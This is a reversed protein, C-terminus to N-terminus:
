PNELVWATARHMLEAASKLDLKLKLRERYTNVTNTSLGLNEAIERTTAGQGLLRFVELERDSLSEIPSQQVDEGDQTRHLVREILGESFYMKRDLVRCIADLIASAPDQKNVYGNAGARLAREGYLHEDYMSYVIVRTAPDYAKIQKILDIGNGSKLAIDVVILDPHLERILRVAEGEEAAEGCTELDPRNSLMMRLGDRLLEHDDVILVRAPRPVPGKKPDAIATNQRSM